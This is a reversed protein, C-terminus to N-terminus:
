MDTWTGPMNLGKGTWFFAKSHMDLGMVRNWHKSSYLAYGQMM